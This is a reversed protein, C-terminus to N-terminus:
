GGPRVRRVEYDVVVPRAGAAPQPDVHQADVREADLFDAAGERWRRLSPDTATREDVLAGTSEYLRGSHAGTATPVADPLRRLDGPLDGRLDRRVTVWGARDPNRAGDLAPVLDQVHELSLVSVGEPVPVGGIPAGTTVVHSLGPHQARFVPDAALAAATIGGQSHGGLLVPDAVGKAGRGTRARADSLAATVATMTLTREHAELLQNSTQDWPNTGPRPSFTQTGPVDVVWAYRGDALPIGTVRVHDGGSVPGDAAVLDVVGRPPRWGATSVPHARIEVEFGSEDLVHGGGAATVVAVAEAQTRPPSRLGARDARDALYLGLPPFGLGLGVVLGEAGAVSHELLWPHEGLVRDVRPGARSPLERVDGIVSGVYAGLWVPSPRTRLAAAGLVAAASVPLVVTPVAIGLVLGATRDVGEVAQRAGGEGARYLEAAVTGALVRLHLSTGLLGSPGAVALLDAGTRATRGPAVLAAAVLAPDALVLALDAASDALDAAVARLAPAAVDLADLAVAIGGAGGSVEIGPESM